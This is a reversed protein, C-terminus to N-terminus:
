YGSGNLDITGETWEYSSPYIMVSTDWWPNENPAAKNKSNVFRNDIVRAGLKLYFNPVGTQFLSIPFLQSDVREFASRAIM